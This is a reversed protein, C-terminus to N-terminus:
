VQLKSFDAIQHCLNIFQQLIKLRNETKGEEDIRVNNFFADIHNRVSALNNFLQYFDQEEILIPFKKNLSFCNNFLSTEFLNLDSNDVEGILTINKQKIINNARKYAAYIAMLEETKLNEQLANAANRLLNPNTVNVIVAQVIDKRINYKEEFAIPMREQIFEWVDPRMFNNELYWDINVAYCETWLRILGLACRRLAFPDKSSTPKENHEFFINLTELKDFIALNFGISSNSPLESDLGDPLYYDRCAIALVENKTKEMIYHYNMIGQLEPFEGVMQTTLDMKMYDCAQLYRKRDIDKFNSDNVYKKVHKKVREQKEHLSIGRFFERDKLKEVFYDLDHSMDDNYLFQADSLRARLVRQNNHIIEGRVAENTEANPANSVFAFINSIKGHMRYSFYKQHGRMPAILCEEPLNLFQEDFQGRLVLPYEVLGVAENILDEDDILECSNEKAIDALGRRIIEKRENPCVIIKHNEMTAKYNIATLGDIVDNMLRHGATTKSLALPAGGLLIEGNIYEGHLWILINRLPRIFKFNGHNYKMAKPLPCQEIIRALAPAIIDKIAQPPTIKKFIYYDGKADEVKLLDDVNCGNSRCFGELAQAPASLKPGKVETITQQTKEAVLHYIFALRRPTSYYTGNAVGLFEAIATGLQNALKAQIGAPIEEILLEILM